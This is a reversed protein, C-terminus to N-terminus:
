GVNFCWPGSEDAIRCLRCECPRCLQLVDPRVANAGAALLGPPSNENRYHKGFGAGCINTSRTRTGTQRLWPSWVLFAPTGAGSTVTLIPSKGSRLQELILPNCNRQGTRPFGEADLSSYEM